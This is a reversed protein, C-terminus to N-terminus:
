KVETGTLTYVHGSHLIYIQGDRLLKTTSTTASTQEIGEEDGPVEIGIIPHFEKWQDAAAYLDVSQMPVYLPIQSCEVEYFVTEETTSPVSALCTVSSLQKCGDFARGGINTVKRPITISALSSCGSFAGEDIKTITSPLSVSTLSSCGSFLYEGILTIGEPLTMSVLNTCFGFASSMIRTIGDKLTISTLNSCQYFAYQWITDVSSPVVYETGEKASPYHYLRTMEKNYLVGDVDCFKPNSEDVNYSNLNYCYLFSCPMASVSSPIDISTLRKNEGFAMFGLDTLTNPLQISSLDCYDFAQFKISQLGESFVVSTLKSCFLFAQDEISIVSEPITVSTLDACTKFAYAGIRTVAYPVEDYTISAPIDATTIHRNHNPEYSVRNDYTVEATQTETDINYFLDDIQVFSIIEASAIGVCAIALILTFFKKM